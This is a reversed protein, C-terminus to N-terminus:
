VYECGSIIEEILESDSQRPRRAICKAGSIVVEGPMTRMNYVGGMSYCYAGANKIELIDYERIEPLERQEAFELCHLVPIYPLDTLAKVLGRVDRRLHDLVHV